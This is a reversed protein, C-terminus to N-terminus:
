CYQLMIIQVIIRSLAMVRSVRSTLIGLINEPVCDNEFHSDGLVRNKESEKLSRCTNYDRFTSPRLGDHTKLRLGDGM